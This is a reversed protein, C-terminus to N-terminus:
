ERSRVPLMPVPTHATISRYRENHACDAFPGIPSLLERLCPDLHDRIWISMAAGPEPALEGWASRLAEFRFVAEPHEWWIPCWTLEGRLPRAIMSTVTRDVWDVLAGVDLDDLGGDSHAAQDPREDDSQPVGNILEDLLDSQHTRWAELAQVRAYLEAVLRDPPEPTTM